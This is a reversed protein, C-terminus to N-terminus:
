YENWPKSKEELTDTQKKGRYEVLSPIKWRCRDIEMKDNERYYYCLINKDEYKWFGNEKYTMEKRLITFNPNPPAKTKASAEKSKIEVKCGILILFVVILTLKKM